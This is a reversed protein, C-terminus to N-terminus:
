SLTRVRIQLRCSSFRSAAGERRTQNAGTIEEPTVKAQNKLPHNVPVCLHDDGPTGRLCVCPHQSHRHRLLASLTLNSDRNGAPMAALSFSYPVVGIRRERRHRRNRRRDVIASV